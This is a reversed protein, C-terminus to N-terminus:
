AQGFRVEGTYDVMWHVGFRDICSGFREAWATRELPMTVKGGAALAEFLRHAEAADDAALYIQVNSGVSFGGAYADTIDSGMLLTGAGLRISVHAILDGERDDTGGMGMDRYRVISPEDGGFVSHYFAFAEETQGRFNLYPNVQKMTTEEREPPQTRRARSWRSRRRERTLVKERELLAVRAKPWADRPAIEPLDLGDLADEHRPDTM